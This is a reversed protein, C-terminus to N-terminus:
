VRAILPKLATRALVKLRVVMADAMRDSTLIMEDFTSDLYQVKAGITTNDTAAWLIDVDIGQITSNANATLFAPGGNLQAFYSVQQDTYEWYFAEVNLQLTNNLFRNKAGITYADIFEPEYTPAM